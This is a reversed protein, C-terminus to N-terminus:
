QACRVERVDLTDKREVRGLRAFVPMMYGRVMICNQNVCEGKTIINEPPYLISEGPNITINVTREDIMDQTIHEIINVDEISLTNKRVKRLEPMKNYCHELIAEPQTDLFTFTVPTNGTNIVLANPTETTQVYGAGTFRDLYFGSTASGVGGRGYKKDAGWTTMFMCPAFCILHHHKLMLVSLNERDIDSLEKIDTTTSLMQSLAEILQPKVERTKLVLNSIRYRQNNDDLTPASPYETLELDLVKFPRQHITNAREIM